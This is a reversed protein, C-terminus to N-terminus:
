SGKKQQGNLRGISTTRHSLARKARHTQSRSPRPRRVRSDPGSCFVSKTHAPFPRWNTPCHHQHGSSTHSPSLITQTSVAVCAQLLYRVPHSLTVFSEPLNLAILTSGHVRVLTGHPLISTLQKPLCTTLRRSSKERVFLIRCSRRLFM